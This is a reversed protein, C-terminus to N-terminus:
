EEETVGKTLKSFSGFRFALCADPELSQKMKVELLRAGQLPTLDTAVRTGLVSSSRLLFHDLNITLFVGFLGALLLKRKSM